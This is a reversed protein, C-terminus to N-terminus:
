TCVLMIRKKASGDIASPLRYRVTIHGVAAELAPDRDDGARTAADTLRDRAGERPLSGRDRHGGAGLRHEVGAQRAGDVVGHGRDLGFAAPRHRDAGVERAVVVDLPQDGFRAGREPGDVEQDVVGSEGHGPARRGGVSGAGADGAGADGAGAGVRM